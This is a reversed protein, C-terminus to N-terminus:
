KNQWLIDMDIDCIMKRQIQSWRQCVFELSSIEIREHKKILYDVLVM